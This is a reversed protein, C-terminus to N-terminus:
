QHLKSRAVKTERTVADACVIVLVVTAVAVAATTLGTGVGLATLGFGVAFTILTGIYFRATSSM